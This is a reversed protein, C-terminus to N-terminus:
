PKGNTMPPLWDMWWGRPLPNREPWVEDLTESEFLTGGRMVYRPKLIARLDTLPNADFVILDALKGVEVSGLDKDLGISRAGFITGVRLVDHAPMGGSAILLLDWPTGIGQVEHHAGVGVAGGYAVIKAAAGAIGKFVFDDEPAWIGQRTRRNLDPQFTFRSLRPEEYANERAILYYKGEPGGYAVLMTPTYTIESAASLLAFDRYLPWIEYAHEHGAYGDLMESVAMKLDGAGETTPTIRSEYTAMAVLQRTRRNGALYQKITQTEYFEAYRRIVERARQLTSIQEGSFIGQGTGLFRPGLLDGTRLRDGYTIIASTNTQPDRMTTVGFALNAHFAPVQTKHVDPSPWTHAHVDVWGPVITKGSVDISTAGAPITVSGSAGVATIRNDTVVIDGREIVESGRMSIIRAGRLAVVGRPKEAAVTINMDFRAPTYAARFPLTDAGPVPLTDGALRKAWAGRLSDARAATAAAIDYLFFSRGLSFYLYRGDKSWGPFEAGVEIAVQSPVLPRDTRANLAIASGVTPAPFVSVRRNAGNVAFGHTGTPSLVVPDGTYMTRRDSGDWKVSQLGGAATFLIREPDPGFHALSGDAPLNSVGGVDVIQHIEGGDANMWALSLAGEDMAGSLRDVFNRRPVWPGTAFVIRRGDPSYVPRFFFSSASTLKKLGSGDANFVFWAGTNTYTQRQAVALRPTGAYIVALAILRFRREVVTFPTPSQYPATRAHL